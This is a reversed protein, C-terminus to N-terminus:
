SGAQIVVLSLTRWATDKQTWEEPNVGSGDPICAECHNIVLRRVEPVHELHQELTNGYQYHCIWRPNELPSESYMKSNWNM